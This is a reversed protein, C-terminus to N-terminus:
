KKKEDPIVTKEVPPTKPKLFLKDLGLRGNLDLSYLIAIILMLGIIGMILYAFLKGEMQPNIQYPASPSADKCSKEILPKKAVTGCDNADICIRSSITQNLCKTWEGCGWNEQCIPKTANDCINKEDVQGNCNNDTLDCTENKAVVEGICAGWKGKSCNTLGQRCEGVNVGCLAVLNEDILGNCNDDDNNCIELKGAGPVCQPTYNGNVCTQSVQSTCAGIGCSQTKQLGDDTQGNCDDDINNCIETTPLIAGTCAGWTHDVQCIQIGQRCAGISNGCTKNQGVTCEGSCIAPDDTIGDCNDDISNGCVETAPLIAGVCSGWTGGTCTQTGAECAGITSGCAQTQGDTCSCGENFQGNCNDDIANGCIESSAPAGPTCAPIFAGASCTQEVTTQCAGIGCTQQAALNEDIQSNCNDDINNCTESVGPHIAANADNCDNGGCSSAQYTDSDADPCIPEGSPTPFNISFQSTAVSLINNSNDEIISHPITLWYEFKLRCGQAQFAPQDTSIVQSVPSTSGVSDITSQFFFLRTNTGTCRKFVNVGIYGPGNEPRTNQTTIAFQWNGAPLDGTLDFDTAFGYGGSNASITGHNNSNSGPRFLISGAGDDQSHSVRTAAAAGDGVTQSAAWYRTGGVQSTIDLDTGYVTTAFANQSFFLCLILIIPLLRITQKHQVIKEAGALIKRELAFIKGIM